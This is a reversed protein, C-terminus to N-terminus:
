EMVPRFTAAEVKNHVAYGTGGPILEVIDKLGINRDAYFGKKGFVYKEICDMLMIEGTSKIVAARQHTIPKKSVACVWKTTESDNTLTDPKLEILDKLRLPTNSMPCVCHKKPESVEPVPAVPATQPIWFDKEVFTAKDRELFKPKNSQQKAEQSQHHISKIRGEAEIFRGIEKNSEEMEREKAEKDKKLLRQTYLFQHDELDKKQKALNLIVCDKCYVFGKKTCVPKVASRLCLWCQEFSRMSDVGLRERKTGADKIKKKEYYTFYGKATNNKSHKTM